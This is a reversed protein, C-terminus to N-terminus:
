EEPHNSNALRRMIAIMIEGQALTLGNHEAWLNVTLYNNVYDWYGAILKDRM